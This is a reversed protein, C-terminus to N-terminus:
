SSLLRAQCCLLRANAFELGTKGTKIAPKFNAISETVNEGKANHNKLFAGKNKM